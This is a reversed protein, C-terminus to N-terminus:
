ARQRVRAWDWLFQAPRHVVASRPGGPQQHQRRNGPSRGGNGSGDQIYNAGAVPDRSSDYLNWLDFTAPVNTDPASSKVYNQQAGSTQFMEVRDWGSDSGNWKYRIAVAIIQNAGSASPVHDKLWIAFQSTAASSANPDNLTLNLGTIEFHATNPDTSSPVQGFGAAVTAPITVATQTTSRDDPQTSTLVGNQLGGTGLYFQPGLPVPQLIQYLDYQAPTTQWNTTGSLTLTTATNSVITAVQGQASASSYTIWVQMGAFQNPTWNVSQGTSTLGVLTSPTASSVQGAFAVQQPQQLISTAPQSISYTSTGDPTTTWAQTVTLSTASTGSIIRTQGAGTGSTITVELGNFQNPFWSRTTDNLTTGSNSGSSTGFATAGVPQLDTSGSTGTQYAMTKGPVTLVVTSGGDHFTVSVPNLSPNYAVYTAVNSTANRFAAYTSVGTATVTADLIGYQEM